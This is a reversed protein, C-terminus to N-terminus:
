NTSAANSATASAISRKTTDFLNRAAATSPIVVKMGAAKVAQRIANSDYAKDAILAKGEASDLMTETTQSEHVQGGTLLFRLPRGLADALL